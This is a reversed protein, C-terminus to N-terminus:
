LGVGVFVVVACIHSIRVRADVADNLLKSNKLLEPQLRLQQALDSGELMVSIRQEVNNM